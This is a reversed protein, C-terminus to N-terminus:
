SLITKSADALFSPGLRFSHRYLPRWNVGNVKSMNTRNVEDHFFTVERKGLLVESFNSIRIQSGTM